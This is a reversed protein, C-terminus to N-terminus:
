LYGLSKLREEVQEQEEPTYEAPPTGSGADPLAQITLAPIDRYSPQPFDRLGSSAFLVGPVASPDICHDAGWHDQNQELSEAEWGGLGTQQSARYGPAFGVVLDPANKALSGTFAQERSWMNQVVRTGDPGRWAKLKETIERLLGDSEEAGVTGKGERGKLNLYMSNLGIAYARTRGWDVQQFKGAGSGDVGALLGHEQLWRNLHVKYSFQSFGHDSVIVVRAAEEGSITTLKQEVRGILADLKVYWQDILDPRDRWFMHQVRDLSDFVVGFLGERFTELHHFLIGERAQDISDCLDLFEADGICGEELGTTDQPWGITLFPGCARWSDKVFSGPSAYPWPSSLPHIQLPLAYLRVQPRTQMLVFRTLARVSVFRGLKFNLEVIPSWRGRELSVRQGDLALQASREGDLELHLPLTSARAGDRQKRSPGPLSSSFSGKGTAALREVPTKQGAPVSDTDQAFLVGVGLRGHLDPAGLGPLSRVPSDLKAPFTAPFWLSTAPFGQRAAQDFITRANTPRTFQTGGLGRKTPLLSVYLSQTGADRHVFDFIGHEGPNLGTAISTWSVESQPPNAVAFRSYGNTAVYKALNPMKGAELLQEFRLPDFADLGLLLTRM